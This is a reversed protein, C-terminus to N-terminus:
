EEQEHFIMPLVHGVYEGLEGGGSIGASEREIKKDWRGGSGAATGSHKFTRWRVQM